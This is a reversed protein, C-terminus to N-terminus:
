GFFAQRTANNLCEEYTAKEEADIVADEQSQFCMCEDLNGHREDVITRYETLADDDNEASTGPSDNENAETKDDSSVEDM